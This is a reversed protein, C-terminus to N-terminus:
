TLCNWTDMLRINSNLASRISSEDLCVIANLIIVKTRIDLRDAAIMTVASIGCCIQKM